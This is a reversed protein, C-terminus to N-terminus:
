VDRDRVGARGAGRNVLAWYESVFGGDLMNSSLKEFSSLLYNRRRM